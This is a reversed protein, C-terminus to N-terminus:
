TQYPGFRGGGLFVRVSVYFGFGHYRAKRYMGVQYYLETSVNDEGHPEYGFAGHGLM